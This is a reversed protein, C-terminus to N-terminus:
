QNESKKKQLIFQKYNDLTIKINRVVAGSFGLPKGQKGNLSYSIGGANGLHIVLEETAKVIAEEGPKKLGALILKGDAYVQLWTDELFAIGLTLEKVEEEEIKPPPPIIEEEQIPPTIQTEQPPVSAKQPRSIFYISALILIVLISFFVFNLLKERKKFISPRSKDKIKETALAQKELLSDEYYKNLVYGEELGIARAYSRIIGKIFFEGPLFELNDDELAQLFKLSIKTSNAIEKLTIGRLERERRLYQGILAM